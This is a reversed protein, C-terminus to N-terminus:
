TAQAPVSSTSACVVLEPRFVYEARPAPLGSIEDLLARVAALSRTRVARHLPAVGSRDVAHPDAGHLAFARAIGPWLSANVAILFPLVLSTGASTLVAAAAIFGLGFVLLRLRYGREVARVIPTGHFAPTAIHSILLM